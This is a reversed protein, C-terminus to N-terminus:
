CYWRSRRSNSVAYRIHVVQRNGSPDCASVYIIEFRWARQERKDKIIKMIVAGENGTLPCKNGYM